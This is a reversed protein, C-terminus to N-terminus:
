EEARSLAHSFKVRGGNPKLSPVTEPVTAAQRPYALAAVLFVFWTLNLRGFVAETLNYFVIVVLFSFLLTAFSNGHLVEQKLKYGTVVVAAVLLFLGILGCNLYIELYGNHAENIFDYREMMGPKLWFSQFGTGVFANVHEKLLGTWIYTRGTFTPERGVLKFFTDTIIPYSVLFYILFGIALSYTGLHRAQRRFLPVRMCLLVAIGLTMCVLGTASHSKLMLWAVMALLVTRVAMDTKSREGTRMGVLEWALFIGCIAMIAGLGNKNRAIGCYAIEGSPQLVYSGLNTFFTVLLASLPVAVNVYRAFIARFAAGPNAETVILLIMIVNGLEKIWKKLCVFPYDSWTLSLGCYLIFAFFWPNSALIRSWNLRRRWLAIAGAIILILFINRDVPSGELANAYLQEPNMEQRAWNASSRSGIFMVWLFPIWLAWSAMPRLKRDSAFLWIIFFVCASLALMSM